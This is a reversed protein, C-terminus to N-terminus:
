GLIGLQIIIPIIGLLFWVVNFVADTPKIQSFRIPNILIFGKHCAMFILDINVEAGFLAIIEIQILPHRHEEAYGDVSYRAPATGGIGRAEGLLGGAGGKVALRGLDSQHHKRINILRAGILLRIIGRGNGM